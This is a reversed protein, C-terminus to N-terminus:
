CVILTLFNLVFLNVALFVYLIVERKTLDYVIYDTIIPAGFLANFLNKSFGLMGIVNMGVIVIVAVLGNFSLLTAFISVELLFKISYPLGTFLTWCIFIFFSFTPMSHVLGTIQSSSRTSFRKSIVDIFFFFICSLLCHTAIFLSTILEGFEQNWLIPICLFNMEQVTTYAILKKLDTQHWMKISSDIVGVVFIVLIPTSYDFAGIIPQFKIFLFVATKVLFGSLYMSFFSSAEVHTKTLWYYFPWMPIKIGFGLFLALFAVYDALSHVESFTFLGTRYVNIVLGVLVLLSGFQTWTLFYISALVSRRNPSLRYVLYFSALLFLEYVLFLNIPSSVNVFLWVSAVFGFLFLINLSKRLFLRTDSFVFTLLGCIFGTYVLAWGLLSASNFLYPTATYRYTQHCVDLLAVSLLVLILYWM